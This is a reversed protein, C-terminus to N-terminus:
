AWARRDPEDDGPFVALLVNVAKNVVFGIPLVTGVSWALSYFLVTRFHILGISVGMLRLLGYAALDGALSGLFTILLRSPIADPSFFRRLSSATAAAIALSVARTGPARMTILDELMGVLFGGPLAVWVDSALGVIIALIMLLDPRNIAPLASFELAKMVPTLILALLCTCIERRTM